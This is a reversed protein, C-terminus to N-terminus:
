KNWTLLKKKPLSQGLSIFNSDNFNTNGKHDQYVIAYGNTSFGFQLNSKGEYGLLGCLAGQEILLRGDVIVKSQMHTHGIVLCDYDDKTYRSSFIKNTKTVTSGPVAASAFGSPHAFITKGIRCYWPEKYQFRIRQKMDKDIDVLFGKEDIVEGNAIRALLNFQYLESVGKPLHESALRLMRSEHNGSTLAVQGCYNLCMKTLAFAARYEHLLHVDKYKPFSSVSYEDMIDGNLVIISNPNSLETKYKELTNHLRKPDSFPVHVDSLSLIFREKSNTIEPQELCEETYQNCVKTLVSLNKEVETMPDPQLGLKKIKEVISRETRVAEFNELGNLGNFTKYIDEVSKNVKVLQRLLQEERTNWIYSM